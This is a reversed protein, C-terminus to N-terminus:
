LIRIFFEACGNLILTIGMLMVITLLLTQGETMMAFTGGFNVTTIVRASENMSPQKGVSLNGLHSISQPLDIWGIRDM